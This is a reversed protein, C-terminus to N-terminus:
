PTEDPVELPQPNEGYLVPLFVAVGFASAIAFQLWTAAAMAWCFLGFTMVLALITLVRRNIVALGVSVANALESIMTM